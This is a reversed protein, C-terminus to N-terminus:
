RFGGELNAVELPLQRIGAVRWRDNLEAARARDAGALLAIGCDGGGAGSPKAAAGLEEATACLTSLRKTFIGIGTAVDLERLLRRSRRIQALVGATDDIRLASELATCCRESDHRFAAYHAEAHDWADARAIQGATSAPTGTWGVALTALGPQPLRRVALGPWPASVAERVGVRDHLARVADRDPSHYAIWGGFTSAALDAGSGRSDVRVAALLALRFLQMPTPRLGYCAALSGIVAVIVAASSGLGFKTGGEHLTSDIVVEVAPVPHGSEIAWRDVIEIAAVVRGLEGGVSGVPRLVGDYREFRTTGFAIDSRVTIDARRRDGATATVTVYRDVAALVAKCGPEVVAYEGAIFLKGPARWRSVASEQVATPCRSRAACHRGQARM